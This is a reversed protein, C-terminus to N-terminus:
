KTEKPEYVRWKANCTQIPAASRPAHVPARCTFETYSEEPNEYNPVIKWAFGFLKSSGCRPCFNRPM